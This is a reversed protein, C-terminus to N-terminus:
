KCIKQSNIGFQPCFYFSTLPFIYLKRLRIFLFFFVQLIVFVKHSFPHSRSSICIKCYFAFSKQSHLLKLLLHLVEQPFLFSKFVFTFSTLSDLTKQPFAISKFSFAFTKSIFAFCERPFCRSCFVKLLSCLAKQPFAFTKALPGLSELIFSFKQFLICLKTLSHM